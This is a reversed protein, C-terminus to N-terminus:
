VIFPTTNDRQKGGGGGRMGMGKRWVNESSGYYSEPTCRGLKTGGSLLSRGLFIDRVSDLLNPSRWRSLVYQIM